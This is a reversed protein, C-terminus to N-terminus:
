GSKEGRAASWAFGRISRCFVQLSEPRQDGSAGRAQLEACLSCDQLVGTPRGGCRLVGFAGAVALLPTPPLIRCQGCSDCCDHAGPPWCLAAQVVDGHPVMRSLAVHQLRM